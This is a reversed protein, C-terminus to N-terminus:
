SISIRGLLVRLREMLKATDYDNSKWSSSAGKAPKASSRM